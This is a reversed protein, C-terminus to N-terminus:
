RQSSARGGAGRSARIRRCGANPYLHCGETDNCEDRPVLCDLGGSRSRLVTSHRPNKPNQSAYPNGGCLAGGKDARRESFNCYGTAGCAQATDFDGCNTRSTKRARRAALAAGLAGGPPGYSNLKRDLQALFAPVGACDPQNGAGCRAVKSRQRTAEDLNDGWANIHWWANRYREAIEGLTRGRNAPNLLLEAATFGGFGGPKRGAAVRDKYDEQRELATKKKYGARSSVSLPFYLGANGGRAPAAGRSSARPAPANTVTVRPRGKPPM